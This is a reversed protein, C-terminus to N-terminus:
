PYEGIGEKCSKSEEPYNLIKAYEEAVRLLMHWMTISVPVNCPGGSSSVLQKNDNDFWGYSKIGHEFDEKVVAIEWVTNRPGGKTHVIWKSM